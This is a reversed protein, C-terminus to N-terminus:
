QISLLLLSLHSPLVSGVLRNNNNNIDYKIQGQKTSARHPMKETGGIEYMYSM